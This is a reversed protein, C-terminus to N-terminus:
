SATTRGDGGDDGNDIVSNELNLDVLLQEPDLISVWGVGLGVMRALLWFSQIAYVVSYWRMEPMSQAGLGFGKKTGEDYFIALQVPAEKM